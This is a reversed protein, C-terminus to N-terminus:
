SDIQEIIESYYSNFKSYSFENRFHEIMETRKDNYIDNVKSSYPSFTLSGIQNKIDQLNEQQQALLNRNSFQESLGSLKQKVKDYIENYQQRLEQEM